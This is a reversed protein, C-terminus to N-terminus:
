IEVALPCPEQYLWPSFKPYKALTTLDLWFSNFLIFNLPAHSHGIQASFLGHGLKALHVLIMFITSPGTFWILVSILQCPFPIGPCHSQTVPLLPPSISNPFDIWFFFIYGSTTHDYSFHVAFSHTLIWNGIKHVLMAYSLLMGLKREISQWKSSSQCQIQMLKESRM